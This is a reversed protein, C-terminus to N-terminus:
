NGPSVPTRTFSVVATVLKIKGPSQHIGEAAAERTVVQPIPLCSSLELFEQPTIVQQYFFFFLLKLM